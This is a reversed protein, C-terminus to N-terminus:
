ISLRYNELMAELTKALGVRSLLEAVLNFNLVKGEGDKGNFLMEGRYIAGTWGGVLDVGMAIAGASLLFYLRDRENANIWMNENEFYNNKISDIIFGTKSAIAAEKVETAYYYAALGKLVEEATVSALFRKLKPNLTVGLSAVLQNNIEADPNTVDRQPAASSQDEHPTIQELQSKLKPKDVLPDIVPKEERLEELNSLTDAEVVDSNNYKYNNKSYNDKPTISSTCNEEIRHSNEQVELSVLSEANLFNCATKYNIAVWYRRDFRGNMGSKGFQALHILKLESLIGFVRRVTGVKLKLLDAWGQYSNYIWKTNLFSEYDKEAELELEEPIWRDPNDTRDKIDHYNKGSHQLWQHIKWLAKTCADDLVNMLIEPLQFFKGACLSQFEQNQTLINMNFFKITSSVGTWIGSRAPTKIKAYGFSNHKSYM